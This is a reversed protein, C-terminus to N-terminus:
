QVTTSFFGSQEQTGFFTLVENQVNAKNYGTQKHYSPKITRVLDKKLINSMVQM